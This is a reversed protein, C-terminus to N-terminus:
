FIIFYIPFCIIFCYDSLLIPFLFNMIQWPESKAVGKDFSILVDMIMCLWRCDLQAQFPFFCRRGTFSHNRRPDFRPIQNKTMWRLTGIDALGCLGCMMPTYIWIAQHGDKLIAINESKVVWSKEFRGDTGWSIFIGFAGISLILRAWNQYFMFFCMNVTPSMSPTTNWEYEKWSHEVFIELVYVISLIVHSETSSM